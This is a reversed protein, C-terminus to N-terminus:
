SAVRSKAAERSRRERSGAPKLKRRIPTEVASKAAASYASRPSRMSLFTPLSFARSFAISASRSFNPAAATTRPNANPSFCSLHPLAAKDQM